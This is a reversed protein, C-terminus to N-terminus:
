EKDNLTKILIPVAAKAANGLAALAYAAPRRVQWEEDKLAMILMPVAPVAAKEMNALAKAAAGRVQWEEDRLAKILSPIGAKAPVGIQSIALAAQEREEWEVSSLTKILHPIDQTYEPDDALAPNHYIFSEGSDTFTILLSRAPINSGKFDFDKERFNAIM